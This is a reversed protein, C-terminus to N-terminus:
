FLYVPFRKRHLSVGSFIEPTCVRFGKCKRPTESNKAAGIGFEDSLLFNWHLVASIEQLWQMQSDQYSTDRKLASSLSRSFMPHESAHVPRLFYERRVRLERALATLAEADPAHTGSEWRSVASPSVGIMQALEKMSLIRRAARVEALREPVFGPTGVRM